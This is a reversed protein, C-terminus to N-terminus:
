RSPLIGAPGPARVRIAANSCTSASSSFSSAPGGCHHGGVPVDLQQQFLAGGGQVDLRRVVAPEGIRGFREAELEGARWGGVLRQCSHAVCGAARLGGEVGLVALGPGAAGRRGLDKEAVGANGRALLLAQGGLVVTGALDDGGYVLGGGLLAM